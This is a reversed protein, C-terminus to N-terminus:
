GPPTPSPLGTIIRYLTATDGRLKITFREEMDKKQFKSNQFVRLRTSDGPDDGYEYTESSIFNGLEDHETRMVTDFASRGVKARFEPHAENWIDDFKGQNFLDHYRRIVSEAIALKKHAANIQESADDEKVGILVVIGQKPKIELIDSFVSVNGVFAGPGPGVAILSSKASPAKKPDSDRFSSKTHGKTL